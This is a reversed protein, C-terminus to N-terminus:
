NAHGFYKNLAGNYFQSGQRFKKKLYIIV